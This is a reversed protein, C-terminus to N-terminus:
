RRVSIAFAFVSSNSVKHQHQQKEQRKGSHQIYTDRENKFNNGGRPNKVGGNMSLLVDETSLSILMGTREGVSVGIDRKSNEFVEKWRMTPEPSGKSIM